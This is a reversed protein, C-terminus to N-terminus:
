PIAAFLFFGLAIYLSIGVGIYVNRLLHREQLCKELPINDLRRRILLADLELASQGRLKGEILQLTSICADFRKRLRVTTLAFFGGMLGAVLFLGIKVALRCCWTEKALGNSSLLYAAAAVLGSIAIAMGVFLEVNVRDHHRLEELTTKYLEILYAIEISM